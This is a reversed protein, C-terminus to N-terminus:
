PNIPLRGCEPCPSEARISRRDYACFACLGRSARRSRTRAAIFRPIWPLSVLFGVVSTAALTNNLVAWWLITAGTKARAEDKDFEWHAGRLETRLEEWAGFRESRVAAALVALQEEPALPAGDARQVRLHARHVLLVPDFLGRAGQVPVITLSAVRDPHEVTARSVADASDDPTGILSWDGGPERVFWGSRYPPQGSTRVREDVGIWGGIISHRSYRSNTSWHLREVCGAIVIAFLCTWAPHQLRRASRSIFGLLRM